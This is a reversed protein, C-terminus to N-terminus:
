TRDPENAVFLEIPVDRQLDDGTRPFGSRPGLALDFRGSPEAVSTAQAREGEVTVVAVHVDGVLEDAAVGKPVHEAGTPDFVPYRDLRGSLYEVREAVCVPLPDRVPVDLRRVDHELLSGLGRGPEKVESEGAEVLEVPQGGGAVHGPGQCVDCGLSEVPHLRGARSVDPRDADDDPLREGTEMGELRGRRDLRRLPDGGPGARQRPLTGVKRSIEADGDVPHEREIRAAPRRCAACRGVQAGCALLPRAARARQRGPLRQTGAGDM